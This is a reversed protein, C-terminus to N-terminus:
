LANVAQRTGGETPLFVSASRSCHTMQGKRKRVIGAGLCSASGSVALLPEDVPTCPAFSRLCVAECSSSFLM